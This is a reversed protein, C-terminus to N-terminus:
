PSGPLKPPTRLIAHALADEPPMPNGSVNTLNRSPLIPARSAPSAVGVYM